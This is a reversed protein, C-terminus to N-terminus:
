VLKGPITANQGDTIRKSGQPAKEDQRNTTAMSRVTYTPREMTRFHMRALYEGIIGLAFLQVGSFIAITCALFPFGPVSGGYLFYRGLVFVLLGVGFLTSAFGLLSAVQL